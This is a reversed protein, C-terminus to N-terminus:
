HGELLIGVAHKLFAQAKAEEALLVMLQQDARLLDQQYLIITLADSRGSQFDKEKAKLKRAELLQVQKAKQARLRLSTLTNWAVHVQARIDEQLQKFQLQAQKLELKAQQAEAKLALNRFPIVFEGGIFWNPHDISFSNQAADGWGGAVANLTLSSILDFQPWAGFKTAKSRQESAQLQKKRAKLDKRQSQAQALYIDLGQPVRGLALTQGAHCDADLSLLLLNKLQLLINEAGQKAALLENERASLNAKAAYLDADEATGISAKNRTVKLFDKARDVAKVAVGKAARFALWDWYTQLANLVLEEIQRKSLDESAQAHNQAFAINGRLTTGFANRLLPQRLNFQWAADHAPDLTAFPSNSKVRNNLFSTELTTGSPFSTRYRLNINTTDNRTGFVTTVRNSADIQHNTEIVFTHDYPDRARLVATKAIAAEIQAVKGLRSEEVIRERVFRETLVVPKSAAYGLSIGLFLLLIFIIMQKM